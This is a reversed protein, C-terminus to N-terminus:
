CPHPPQQKRNKKTTGTRIAIKKKDPQQQKTAVEAMTKTKELAKQHQPVLNERWLGGKLISTWSAADTNPSHGVKLSQQTVPACSYWGNNLPAQLIHTTLM